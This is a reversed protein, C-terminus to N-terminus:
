NSQMLFSLDEGPNLENAPQSKHLSIAPLHGILSIDSNEILLSTGERLGIVRVEPNVMLFEELRQLRTEGQHNELVADTYHPNIQFPILNLARLTPPEIIPMDNTTMVTPCAINSGASWGIYSTGNLVKSKMIQMLNYYYLRELLRFTNGGGVAIAEANEIAKFYSEENHISYLELDMQAFKERVKEFYDDYSITVGAFPIFLVKKTKGSFFSKITDFAHELYGYGTTTSNSLLLLNM